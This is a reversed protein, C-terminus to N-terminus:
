RIGPHALHLSRLEDFVRPTLGLTRGSVPHDLDVVCLKGPVCHALGSLHKARQGKVLAASWPLWGQPRGRVHDRPQVSCHSTASHWLRAAVRPSEARISRLRQRRKCRCHSRTSREESGVKVGGEVAGSNGITRSERSLTPVSSSSPAADDTRERL